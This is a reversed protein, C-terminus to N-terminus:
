NQKQSYKKNINIFNNWKPHGYKTLSFENNLLDQVFQDLEKKSSDDEIFAKNVILANPVLYTQIDESIWSYSDKMIKGKKYLSDLKTSNLNILKFFKKAREDLVAFYKAPTGAIFFVIDVKRASLNEFDNTIKDEIFKWNM